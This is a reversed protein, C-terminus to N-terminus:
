KEVEVKYTVLEDLTVQFFMALKSVTSLMTDFAKNEVNNITVRSVHISSALDKQTLNYHKRLRKVNSSLYNEHASM